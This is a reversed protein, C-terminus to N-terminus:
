TRDSGSASPSYVDRGSGYERLAHEVDVDWRFSGLTSLKSDDIIVPTTYAAVLESLRPVVTGASALWKPIPIIRCRRDAILEAIRRMSLATGGVNFIEGNLSDRDRAIADIAAVFKGVPVVSKLTTGIDAFWGLRAIRGLKRLNGPARVGFIMAPRVIAGRIHGRVIADLVVREAELKSHGYVTRPGLPASETTRASTDAYVNVTSVFIVFAGAAAAAVSDVLNSTGVVNVERCLRKEEDTRAGRHVWAALHVIVDAGRVLDQLAGRDSLSGTIAIADGRRVPGRTLLRVSEGRAVLHNALTSGLYGSGGTIAWTTM